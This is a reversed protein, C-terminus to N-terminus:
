WGHPYAGAARWAGVVLGFGSAAPRAVQGSFHKAYFEPLFRSKGTPKREVERRLAHSFEGLQPDAGRAGRGAGRAGRLASRAALAEIPAPPDNIRVAGGELRVAPENIRGTAAELWAAAGTVTHSSRKAM